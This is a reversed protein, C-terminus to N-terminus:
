IGYFIKCRWPSDVSPRTLSLMGLTLGPAMYGAAYMRPGDAWFLADVGHKTPTGDTGEVTVFIARSAHNAVGPNREIYYQVSRSIASPPQFPDGSRGREFARKLAVRLTSRSTFFALEPSPNARIYARLAALAPPSPWFAEGDRGRQYADWLDSQVTTLLARLEPSAKEFSSSSFRPAASPSPSAQSTTGGHGSACGSILLSGLAVAVILWWGHGRSKVIVM